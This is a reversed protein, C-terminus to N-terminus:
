RVAPLAPGVAERLQPAKATRPEGTPWVVGIYTFGIDVLRGSSLRNRGRDPDGRVWDVLAARADLAEGGVWGM